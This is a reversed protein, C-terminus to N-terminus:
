FTKWEHEHLRHEQAQRDNRAVNTAHRANDLISLCAQKRRPWVIDVAEDGRNAAQHARYLQPSIENVLPVLM